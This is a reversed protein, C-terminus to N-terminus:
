GHAGPQPLRAALRGDRAPREEHDRGRRQPYDLSRPDPHGAAARRVSPREALGLRLWPPRLDRRRPLNGGLHPQDAAALRRFPVATNDRGDSVGQAPTRAGPRRRVTAPPLRPRVSSSGLVAGYALPGHVFPPLRAEASVTVISRIKSACPVDM